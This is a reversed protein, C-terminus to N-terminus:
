APARQVLVVPGAPAPGLLRSALTAAGAPGVARSGALAFRVIRFGDVVRDSLVATGPALPRTVDQWAGGVVDVERVVPAAVPQPGWPVRRLYFRLPDSGLSDYLVVARATRARGLAAAVGRWDPREYQSSSQIRVQGYAFLALLSLALVAGPLRAHRATCAAGVLVALPIWAPMLARPIYFDHGALAALIPLVLVCGALVAALGAGHLAGREAGAVLLMIVAAALVVAGIVGYTLLGSQYLNGLAFAVPVQRIRMSLPTVAIFGLLSHTAHTFALPLLAGQVVVPPLIAPVARRRLSWLLWAAEPWVLFAAFFHTCLALASFLSWWGLARRTGTRRARVFWLLSAASLASLLMYERAEQSYWIMFPSIAVLAAAVLGASRSVLERGCAYALWIAAVGALASLSRLAVEGTGFIHGWVWGLVFYLPPNTEKALLGHVMSGFSRGLEHAAQAEDFWYSQAGLTAFRLAAGGLLLAALWWNQVAIPRGGRQTVEPADGRVPARASTLM